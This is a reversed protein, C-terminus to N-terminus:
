LVSNVLEKSLVITKPDLFALLLQLVRIQTMEDIPESSALRLM